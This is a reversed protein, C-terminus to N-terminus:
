SASGSALRKAKALEYYVIETYSMGRFPHFNQMGPIEPRKVSFMQRLSMQGGGPPPPPPTVDGMEKEAEALSKGSNFLQVIKARRASVEDLNKQLDAKTLPNNHGGLYVAADLAVLQRLSEIAGETSGYDELHINTGGALDGIFAVRQQPLFAVLDGSTHAPKWHFLQITQGHVKLEARNRVTHTPQFHIREGDRVFHLIAELRAATEEQCIITIGRPFAFVGKYHDPNTHSFIFHTIPKNTVKALEGMVDRSTSTFEFSDFVIVGNDGVIYGTNAGVAGGQAWYTNDKLVKLAPPASVERQANVSLFFGSTALLAAIGVM